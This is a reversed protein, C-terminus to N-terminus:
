FSSHLLNSLVFVVFTSIVYGIAHPLKYYEFISYVGFPIIVIITVYVSILGIVLLLALLKNM